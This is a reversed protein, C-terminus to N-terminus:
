YVRTWKFKGTIEFCDYMRSWPVLLRQQGIQRAISTLRQFTEVSHLIDGESIGLVTWHCKLADLFPATAANLPTDRPLSFSKRSLFLLLFEKRCIYSICSTPRKRCRRRVLLSASTRINRHYGFMPMCELKNTLRRLQFVGVFLPVYRTSKKSWKTKARGCCDCAIM